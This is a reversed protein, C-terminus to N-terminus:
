FIYLSIIVQDPDKEPGHVMNDKMPETTEHESDSSEEQTPARSTEPESDFDSTSDETIERTEM